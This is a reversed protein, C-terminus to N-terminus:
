IKQLQQINYHLTMQDMLSLTSIIFQSNVVQQGHSLFPTTKKSFYHFAYNWNSFIDHFLAVDM